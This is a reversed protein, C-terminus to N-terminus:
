RGGPACFVSPLCIAPRQQQGFLRLEIGLRLELDEGVVDYAAVARGRALDVLLKQEVRPARCGRPPAPRQQDAGKDALGELLDLVLSRSASAM